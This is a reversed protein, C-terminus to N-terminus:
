FYTEPFCIDTTDGFNFRFRDWGAGGYATEGFDVDFGTDLIDDGNGGYLADRGWGGHLADNGWNGYLTDDGAQGDLLDGHFGGSLTDNGNGGFLHSPVHTNHSIHDNGDHGWVFIRNFNWGPLTMTQDGARVIIKNDFPDWTGNDSFSVAIRDNGATGHVNLEGFINVFASVSFMARGELQEFAACRTTAAGTTSATTRSMLNRLFAIM